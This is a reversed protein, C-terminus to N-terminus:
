VIIYEEKCCDIGLSGRLYLELLIFKMVIGWKLILERLVLFFMCKIKYSM